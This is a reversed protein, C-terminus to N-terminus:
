LLSLSCPSIGPTWCVNLSVNKFFIRISKSFGTHKTPDVSSVSFAKLTPVKTPPPDGSGVESQLLPPVMSYLLLLFFFDSSKKGVRRGGRTIAGIREYERGGPDPRGGTGDASCTRQQYIIDYRWPKASSNHESLLSRTGYYQFMTFANHGKIVNM